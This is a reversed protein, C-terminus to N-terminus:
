QVEYYDKVFSLEEPTQLQLMSIKTGNNDLIILTSLSLKLHTKAWEKELREFEKFLTMNNPKEKFDKNEKNKITLGGLRKDLYYPSYQQVTKYVRANKDSPKSSMFAMLALGLFAVFFALTLYKRISQM